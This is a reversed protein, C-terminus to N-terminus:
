APTRTRRTRRWAACVPLLPIAATIYPEPFAIIWDLHTQASELDCTDCAKEANNYKLELGWVELYMQTYPM